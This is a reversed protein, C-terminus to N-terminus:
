GWREHAKHYAHPGTPFSGSTAPSWSCCRARRSSTHSRCGFTPSGHHSGHFLQHSSPNEVTKKNPKKSFPHLDIDVRHPLHQNEHGLHDNWLPLDKKKFLCFVQTLVPKTIDHRSSGHLFWTIPCNPNPTKSGRGWLRHNRILHFDSCHMNNKHNNQNSIDSKLSNSMQNSIYICIYIYVYTYIYMYM